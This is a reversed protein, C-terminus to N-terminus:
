RAVAVVLYQGCALARLVPTREVVPELLRCLTALWDPCFMPVPDIHTRRIVRGGARECWRDVTGPLFSQEEHARHYPSVRGLVKLVPNLGNPELIIVM